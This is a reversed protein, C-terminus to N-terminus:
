LCSLAARMKAFWSRKLWLNKNLILSFAATFIIAITIPINRRAKENAIRHLKMCMKFSPFGHSSLSYLIGRRTNFETTLGKAWATKLLSMFMSIFRYIQQTMQSFFCWSRKHQINEDIVSTWTTLYATLTVCILLAQWNLNPYRPFQFAESWM